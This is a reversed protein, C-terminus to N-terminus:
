RCCNSGTFCSAIIDVLGNFHALMTVRPRWCDLLLIWRYYHFCGTTRSALNGLSSKAM